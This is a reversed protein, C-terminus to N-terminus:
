ASTWGLSVILSVEVPGFSRDDLLPLVCGQDCFFEVCSSLFVDFLWVWFLVVVFM